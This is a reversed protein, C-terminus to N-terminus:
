ERMVQCRFTKIRRDAPTMMSFSKAAGPELGEGAVAYTWDTDMVRGDKDYFEVQVKVYSVSSKGRNRVRGTTTFYSDGWEGKEDEITVAYLAANEELKQKAMSEGVRACMMGPVLVMPAMVSLCLLVVGSAIRGQALGVISLVLSAIFLPIALLITGVHAFLLVVGLVFCIWGANVAATKKPQTPPAPATVEDM